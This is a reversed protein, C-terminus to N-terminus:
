EDKSSLGSNEDMRKRGIVDHFASKGMEQLREPVSSGQDLGFVSLFPHGGGM